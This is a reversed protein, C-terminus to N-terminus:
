FFWLICFNSFCYLISHFFYYCNICFKAFSYFFLIYPFCSIFYFSFLLLSPIPSFLCARCHKLLTSTFFFFFFIFSDWFYSLFVLSLFISFLLRYITSWSLIRVLVNLINLTDQIHFLRGEHAPTSKSYCPHSQYLLLPLFRYPTPGCPIVWGSGRVRATNTMTLVWVVPYSYSNNLSLNMHILCLVFYFIVTM